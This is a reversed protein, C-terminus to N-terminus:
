KLDTSASIISETSEDWFFTNGPQIKVGGLWYPELSFFATPSGTSSVEEGASSLRCNEDDWSIFHSLRELMQEIQLDGFGFADDQKLFNGIVKRVPITQKGILEILKREIAGLGHRSDPFRTCHSRLASPVCSLVSSYDATVLDNLQMADPSAFAIWAEAALKLDNELILEREGYLNAMQEPSLQGLGKFDDLEPHDTPCILSVKCNKHINQSYTYYLIFLLNVQCFLDYEFWLVVEDYNELKTLKELEPIVFSHYSVNVSEGYEKDLFEARQNFFDGLSGYKSIPGECLVERWILIDGVLNTEHFIEATADGNLIHITDPKSM